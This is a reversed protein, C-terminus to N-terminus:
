KDIIPVSKKLIKWEDEALSIGKKGPKMQGGADYYERIDVLVAAKFKTVGVRRKRGLDIYKNDGDRLVVVKGGGDD